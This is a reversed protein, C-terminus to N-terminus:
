SENKTVKYTLIQNENMLRLIYIGSSLKKFDIKNNMENINGDFVKIGKEDFL